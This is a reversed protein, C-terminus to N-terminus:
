AFWFFGQKKHLVLNKIQHEGGQNHMLFRIIELIIAESLNGQYRHAYLLHSLMRKQIAPHESFFAAIHYRIQKSQPEQVQIRSLAKQTELIFFDNDLQAHVQLRRINASSREDIENILPILKSRISNRLFLDSDNTSDHHWNLNNDILYQVLDKKAFILLPRINNQTITQMGAIGELTAGRILKIFFSEVQDDCHHGLFVFPINQETCIKKFFLQRAQRGYAESSGNFTLLHKYNELKDVIFPIQNKECLQRCFDVTEEADERWQHNVHAATFTLQQQNKAHLLLHFLFVSDAGGSLGLLFHPLQEETRPNIKEITAVINCLHLYAQEFFPIKQERQHNNPSPQQQFLTRRLSHLSIAM